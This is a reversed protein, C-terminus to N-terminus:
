DLSFPIYGRLDRLNIPQFITQSDRTRDPLFDSILCFNRPFPIKVSKFKGRQRITNFFNSIRNIPFIYNNELKIITLLKGLLKGIRLSVMSRVSLENLNLRASGRRRSHIVVPSVTAPLGAKRFEQMPTRLRRRFHGDHRPFLALCPTALDDFRAASEFAPDIKLWQEITGILCRKRVLIVHRMDTYHLAIFKVNSIVIILIM